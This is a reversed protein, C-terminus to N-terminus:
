SPVRLPVCRARVTIQLSLQILWDPSHFIAEFWQEWTSPFYLLGRTHFSPNATRRLANDTASRMAEHGNPLADALEDLQSGLHQSTRVAYPGFIRFAADFRAVIM